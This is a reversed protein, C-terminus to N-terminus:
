DQHHLLIPQIWCTSQCPGHELGKQLMLLYSYMPIWKSTTSNDLIKFTLLITSITYLNSIKMPFRRKQYTMQSSRETLYILKRLSTQIIDFIFCLIIYIHLYSVLVIWTSIMSNVLIKFTLLIISIMYLTSIKMLFRRKRYTM